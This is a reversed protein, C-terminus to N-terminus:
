EKVLKYIRNQDMKWGEYDMPSGDPEYKHGMYRRVAYKLDMFASAMNFVDTSDPQLATALNKIEADKM